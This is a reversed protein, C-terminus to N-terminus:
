FVLFPTSIGTGFRPSKKQFGFFAVVGSFDFRRPDFFYPSSDAAHKTDSPAAVPIRQPLEQLHKKSVGHFVGDLGRKADCGRRMTSALTPTDWSRRSIRLRTRTSM